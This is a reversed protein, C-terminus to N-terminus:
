TCAPSVISAALQAHAAKSAYRDYGILARVLAGNKQEVHANDNKQDLGPEPHLHHRRASVVCVPRHNIFGHRRRQGPRAGAHAATASTTSPPASASRARAGSPKSTSRRPRSIWRACRTSISARPAHPRLPRGSGDGPLRSHRRDVRRLHSRSDGQKLWGSPGPRPGAGPRAGPGAGAGAAARAHRCSVQRVLKDVAPPVVLEGADPGPSRASPSSPSGAPPPRHPRGGGVAGPGRRGVEAGYRRPRGGRSSRGPPAVSAAAPSHGSQSAPRLSRGDRRAAARKEARPSRRYRERQVSAYERLSPRTM